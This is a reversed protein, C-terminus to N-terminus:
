ESGGHGETPAGTRLLRAALATRDLGFGICCSHLRRGSTDSIDFSSTMHDGHLNVSAVAQGAPGTAHSIFEKKVGEELQSNALLRAGRGFFPDFADEVSVPIDLANFVSLALPVSSEYWASCEDPTGVFVFELMRFSLLRGPESTSENRFCDAEVGRIHPFSISKGSIEPYVHHCAAPTLALPTGSRASATAVTGLLHPFLQDYGTKKVVDLSIVPPAYHIRSTDGLFASQALDRIRDFVALTFDDRIGAGSPEQPPLVAGSSGTTM